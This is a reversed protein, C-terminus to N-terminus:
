EASALPVKIRDGLGEVEAKRKGTVIKKWSFKLEADPLRRAITRGRSIGAAGTAYNKNTAASRSM